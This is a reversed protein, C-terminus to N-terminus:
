LVVEGGRGVELEWSELLAHDVVVVDEDMFLFCGGGEELLFM